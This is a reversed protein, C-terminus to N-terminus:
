NRRPWILRLILEINKTATKKNNYSNNNNNYTISTTTTTTITTTATTSNNNINYYDNSYSIYMDCENIICIFESQM